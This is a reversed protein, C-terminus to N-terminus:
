YDVYFSIIWISLVINYKEWEFHSKMIFLWFSKDFLLIDININKIKIKYEKKM